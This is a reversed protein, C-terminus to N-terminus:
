AVAQHLDYISLLKHLSNFLFVAQPNPELIKCLFDVDTRSLVVEIRRHAAASGTLQQVFGYVIGGREAALQCAPDYHKEAANKLQEIEEEFLEVLFQPEYRISIHRMDDKGCLGLSQAVKM